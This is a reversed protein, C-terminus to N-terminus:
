VVDGPFPQADAILRDSVAVGSRNRGGPRAAFGLPAFPLGAGSIATTIYTYAPLKSLGSLLFIGGILVRGVFPLFRTASGTACALKVILRNRGDM